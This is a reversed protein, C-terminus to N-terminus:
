LRAKYWGAALSRLKRSCLAPLTATAANAATADVTFVGPGAGATV